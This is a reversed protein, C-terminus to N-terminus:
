CCLPTRSVEFDALALEALHFACRFGQHPREASPERAELLSLPERGKILGATQPRQPVM